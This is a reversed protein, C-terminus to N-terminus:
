PDGAADEGDPADPPEADKGIRYRDRVEEIAERHNEHGWISEVLHDLVPEVVKKPLRHLIRMGCGRVRDRQLKTVKGGRKSLAIGVLAAMEQDPSDIVSDEMGSLLDYSGDPTLAVRRIRRGVEVVHGDVSRGELSRVGEYAYRYMWFHEPKRLIGELLPLADVWNFEKCAAVCHDVYRQRRLLDFCVDKSGVRYPPTILRFGARMDGSRYLACLLETTDHGPIADLAIIQEASVREGTELASRVDQLATDNRTDGTRFWLARAIVAVGVAVGLLLTLTILKRM